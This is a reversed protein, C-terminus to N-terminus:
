LLHVRNGRGLPHPGLGFALPREEVAHPPGGLDPPEKDDHVAEGLVAAAVVSEGAVQGSGSDKARRGIKQPMAAGVSLAAVKGADLLHCPLKLADRLLNKKRRGAEFLIRDEAV